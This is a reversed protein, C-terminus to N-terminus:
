LRVRILQSFRHHPIRTARRASQRIYFADPGEFGQPARYLEVGVVALGCATTLLLGLGLRLAMAYEACLVDASVVVFVVVASVSKM